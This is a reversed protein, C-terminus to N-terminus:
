YCRIFAEQEIIKTQQSGAVYLDYFGDGTWQSVGGKSAKGSTAAAFVVKDGYVLLDM